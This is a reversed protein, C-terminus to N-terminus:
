LPRPGPGPCGAPWPPTGRLPPRPAGKEAGARFGDRAHPLVARRERPGAAADPCCVPGRGSRGPHESRGWIFIVRGPMAPLELRWAALGARSGSGRGPRGPRGAPRPPRPRVTHSSLSAALRCASVGGGSALRAGSPRRPGRRTAAPLRAAARPIAPRRGRSPPGGGAPHRATRGPPGYPGPAPLTLSAPCAPRGV